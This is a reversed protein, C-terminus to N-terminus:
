QALISGGLRLKGKSLDIRYFASDGNILEPTLTKAVDVVPAFATIVLSMPSVVSKDQNDNGDTWNARMSLSDKGVPIAIGLAPCLEEGIAHVADFLAADENDDGCAAMWNASMTIDSLQSIRAGAINTIAEGVALRASAKPSILAVPTREGVSMAEGSMPQGDLAILGSATVACDAVPVQYRGVYQDRVVMGTISRDGISILFSKSAVTPHRLVDKISDALNFDNLELPPLENEQRNFSRQMQPTGGLLVQMPMNVPQDSLLDDNVVLQRVETAEGLIAYPCRERACIADFQDKSEPRIALVYREQAENSWIAMPSMGAELSPIKRLNLIAGMEHDNVLEPMANSLGGAGVDHLSVIPNGDKSNNSVDIDNGALAWCRDMVEQCRREMEANDRQVSAFDLGEDLSGSDVSSAAGGGLGIQMAPGGLVILLDGQQISNKEILNRKINGYGGALMIPKHYGRMQSGDKAASTDLQFSRFYGCLNPRGFENSFNASGLPAETMIELSTAMRDPTGYDQTSLQGSQEWKEALEPIHLHSVHFGTLGAKPKGGRGTAGEDRIEGGAGTAAGAYPAIATPHNHTEVKMLIDIEEQHFDYPHASNADMADTPVPYFRMGNSGAMVAANDKYASLIGQPNAKYTNKIMQFLSKPQVAGDVTWEANFIKHRCHESNAQAFMMLEVDTPNRKLENVYANMLYDIDESSLAFGFEKNASELATRGQEIVDIHNLSAPQEDDFLHNVAALDYVLSQTMRDFLLQEADVPLKESLQGKSVDGDAKGDVTLTYVIVREVRKIAIECNNFIDTAKSAWPSITGFRPGVIVQIQNDQPAALDIGENIGFLDLAKKHETGSLERSLVYVQQSNIQSVNLATKQQFQSILQQTQFDTLFPQGAITMM